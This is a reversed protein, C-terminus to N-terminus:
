VETPTINDSRGVHTADVYAETFYSEANDVLGSITYAGGIVTVASAVKVGRDESWLEVTIGSGDGSPYGSVTGTVEFEITHFTVWWRAADWLAANAMGSWAGRCTRSAEPDMMGTELSSMNFTNTYQLTLEYLACATNPQFWPRDSFVWDEGNFEGPLVEEAFEFYSINNGTWCLRDVGISSLSWVTSNFDPFKQTATAILRPGLVTGSTPFDYRSFACSINHVGPGNAARDSTYNIIAFGGMISQRQDATNYGHVYLQNYGRSLAWPSTGQDVRHVFWSNGTYSSLSQWAYSREAQGGAWFNLTIAQSLQGVTYVVVGSQVLTITGPEEVWLDVEWQTADATATGPLFFGCDTGKLPLYLSNLITASEADYEYTVYLVAGFCPFTNTLSSAAKFAHAASTLHVTTDYIYNDKFWCASQLAGELTARNVTGTSDIEIQLNFDTGAPLRGDNGVMEIFAQRIVKSDEPLFTDLPPIQNAPAPNTGGTGVEQMVNTLTTHQSQIPIRVTKIYTGVGGNDDYSYTLLLNATVNNVIDAVSTAFAVGVQCSMSTGTWNTNFYTTVDQKARFTYNRSTAPVATPTYDTDSFAVAGLKIGIRVGTLNRATTYASRCTIEVEASLFTPTSESVFVTIAAFDHRTATALTTNTALTTLLTDFAWITPPHTRIPM